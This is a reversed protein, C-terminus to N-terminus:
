ERTLQGMVDDLDRVSLDLLYLAYNKNHIGNGAKIFQVNQRAPTIRTEIDAPLEIGRAQLDAIRQDVRVLAAEAEQVYTAIESRWQEFLREYDSGHCAICTAESAKVLADGKLDVAPKIHCGTCNLRSGFMANPMPRLAGTGGIGMLLEVQEHHHNPHCHQCDDLIPQLFGASTGVHTADILKHEIARHCDVCRAWQGAVHTQHYRAVTETDRTAFDVLYKEQDHCNTCTRESVVAAGQIVDLHCSACDIKRDVIERHDMLAPGPASTTPFQQQWSALVAQDHVLIKRTPPAHCKLCEGTDRNFAQNGFHCTFCTELDVAMVHALGSPDYSHCAACNLGGLQRLRTREHELRTYELVDALLDDRALGGVLERLKAERREAPGVQGAAVRLPEFAAPSVAQELRQRLGALSAETETLKLETRLHKEHVFTVTPLRTVETEQDGVLRKEVRPEGILLPKRMYENDGHCASRLCSADNVRARPRSTGYRGSFYSAVQSLGRFKAKLTHQEGPAYHCEVCWTGVKKGHVDQSWSQYYSDMIHCTGCFSPRATYYEAGGIGLVGLVVIVGGILLGKRLVRRWRPRAPRGRPTAADRAPVDGAAASDGAHQADDTSM